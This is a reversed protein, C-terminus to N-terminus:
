EDNSYIINRTNDLFRSLSILQQFFIHLDELKPSNSPLLTQFLHDQLDEPLYVKYFIYRNKWTQFMKTAEYFPLFLDDFINLVNDLNIRYYEIHFSNKFSVIQLLTKVFFM